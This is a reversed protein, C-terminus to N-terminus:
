SGVCAHEAGNCTENAPCDSNFECPLGICYAGKDFCQGTAGNCGANGSCDSDFECRIGSACAPNGLAVVCYMGLAAALDNNCVPFPEGLQCVWDTPDETVFCALGAAPDGGCTAAAAVGKECFRQFTAQAGAPLPTGCAAAADAFNKAVGVCDRADLGSSTPADPGPGDDDDGTSSSGGCAALILFCFNVARSM